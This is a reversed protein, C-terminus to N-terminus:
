RSTSGEPACKTRFNNYPRLPFQELLLFERVASDHESTWGVEELHDTLTRTAFAAVRMKEPTVQRGASAAAAVANTANEVVSRSVREQWPKAGSSANSDAAFVNAPLM